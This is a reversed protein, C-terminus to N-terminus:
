SNQQQSLCYKVVGEAAQGPATLFKQTFAIARQQFLPYDALIEQVAADFTDLTGAWRGIGAHVYEEVLMLTPESLLIIMPKGYIAAEIGTTSNMTVVIDCDAYPIPAQNSLMDVQDNLDAAAVMDALMSSQDGPHPKITLSVHPRNRVYDLCIGLAFAVESRPTQSSGSNPLLLLRLHQPDPSSAIVPRQQFFADYNPCGISQTSCGARSEALKCSFHDSWTLYVDTPLDTYKLEKKIFGHQIAIVKRGMEQCVMILRKIRFGESKFFVVPVNPAAKLLRALVRQQALVPGLSKSNLYLVELRFRRRSKSAVLQNFAQNTQLRINFILANLTAIWTAKPLILCPNEFETHHRLYLEHRLFVVQFAVSQRKLQESIPLLQKYHSPYEVMFVLRAEKSVKISKLNSCSSLGKGFQKLIVRWKQWSTLNPQLKYGALPYDAALQAIIEVMEVKFCRAYRRLFSPATKEWVEYRDLIDWIDGTKIGDSMRGPKM